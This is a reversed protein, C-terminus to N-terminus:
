VTRDIWVRFFYYVFAFGSVDKKNAKGSFSYQRVLRKAKDTRIYFIEKEGAKKKTAVLHGNDTVSLFCGNYAQLAVKDEEFVLEFQEQAGIAEARGSVDGMM